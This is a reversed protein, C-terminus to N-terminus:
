WLLGPQTLRRLQWIVYITFIIDFLNLFAPNLLVRGIQRKYFLWRAIVSLGLLNILLGEYIKCVELPALSCFVM